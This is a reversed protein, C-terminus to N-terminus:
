KTKAEDKVGMKIDESDDILHKEVTYYADNSFQIKNKIIQKKFEYKELNIGLIIGLVFSIIAIFISCEKVSM